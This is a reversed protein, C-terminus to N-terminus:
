SLCTDDSGPAPWVANAKLYSILIAPQIKTSTVFTAKIEPKSAIAKVTELPGPLDFQFQEFDHIFFIVEHFDAVTAELTSRAAAVKLFDAFEGYKQKIYDALQDKREPYHTCVTRYIRQLDDSRFYPKDGNARVGRDVAQRTRGLASAITRVGLGSINM